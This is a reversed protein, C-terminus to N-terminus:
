RTYGSCAGANVAGKCERQLRAHRQAPTEGSGSLFKVKGGTGTAGASEAKAKTKKTKSKTKAPKGSDQTPQAQAMANGGLLAVAAMLALAPGKFFKRNM